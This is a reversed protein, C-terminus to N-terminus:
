TRATFRREPQASVRCPLRETIQMENNGNYIRKIFKLARRKTIIQVENHLVGNGTKDTTNSEVLYCASICENCIAKFTKRFSIM